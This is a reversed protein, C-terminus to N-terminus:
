IGFPKRNGVYEKLERLYIDSMMDYYPELSQEKDAQAIADMYARRDNMQIVIPFMRHTLLIYNLLLRSLRGNGDNFPHIKLFRYKFEVATKFMSELSIAKKEHEEYWDILACLEEWVLAGRTLGVDKDGIIVEEGFGRIHGAFLPKAEKLLYFHMDTINSLNLPAKAKYMELMFRQAQAYDTIENKEVTHYKSITDGLGNLINITETLGVRSGEIANSHYNDEIAKKKFWDLENDKLNRLLETYYTIEQYVKDM